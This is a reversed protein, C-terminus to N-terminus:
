IWFNSNFQIIIKKKSVDHEIDAEQDRWWVDEGMRGDGEERFLHSEGQNDSVGVSDSWTEILNPVEEGVSALCAMGALLVYIQTRLVEVSSLLYIHMDLQSQYKIWSYIIWTYICYVIEPTCSSFYSLGEWHKHSGGRGWTEKHTIHFHYAEPRLSELAFLWISNSFTSTEAVGNRLTAKNWHNLLLALLESIYIKNEQDKAM